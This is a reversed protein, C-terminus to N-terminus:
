YGRAPDVVNELPQGRRWRDLNDCFMEMSRRDWGDSVSTCHPTLIVNAM